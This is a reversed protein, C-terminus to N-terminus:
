CYDGLNSQSAIYNLVQNADGCIPLDVRPHGKTLEAPDCDVQVVKGVPIFQQWNFGSQQLGLRSSLAILLDSQQLLINAARQGWTNPRGAFLPHDEPIRDIGNWTLMLPIGLNALPEQLKAATERTIGGGILLVPRKTARLLSVIEDLTSQPIPQFTSQGVILPTENLPAPDLTPM